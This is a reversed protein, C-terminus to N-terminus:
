KEAVKAPVSNTASRAQAGGPRQPISNFSGGRRLLQVKRLQEEKEKQKREMEKRKAERVAPDHNAKTRVEKYPARRLQQPPSAPEAAILSVFAGASLLVLFKM